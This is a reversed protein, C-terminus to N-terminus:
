NPSPMVIFPRMMDNDEHEAVHCHFVYKGTYGEFRVLITLVEGPDVVATDKWGMEGPPPQRVLGILELSGRTLASGNFGQRELIQFQVLHLHMPHADDTTNIFRWTETSNMKPLETAPADYGRGNILMGPRTASSCFTAGAASQGPGPQNTCDRLVFDRTLISEKPNIRQVAPFSPFGYRKGASSLPLIVRLQMLEYLPPHLPGLLDWGPYPAPADNMLTITKGELESFDVILDAREAPALLIKQMTVPASLLGGDSGIQHFKVLSPVDTPDRALNLYLRFFRSNAANLVRLRYPRPEVELYPYIAGNILPLNGFFQPGWVGPPLTNGNDATPLYLLQGRDDLTRDQLILPIEHDGSPLGLRLEQEDHIFYFGSLGAYVNLRTIGLAHDHYWLPAAPQDNPYHYLVSHGPTFWNEPLGDSTSDTRAGHLHPVTRVDPAPPIAGHIEHDVPFLHQLPLENVWEVDIAKGRDVEFLPGPCHSEYGWLTTHPLGSHLRKQFQRMRIRYRPIGRISEYPETPQLLPLPDIYKEIRNALAGAPSTLSGCAFTSISAACLRLFDRRNAASM